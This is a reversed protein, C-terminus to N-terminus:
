EPEELERAQGRRRLLKAGRLAEVVQSMRDVRDTVSDLRPVM